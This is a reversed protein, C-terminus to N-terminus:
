GAKQNVPLKPEWKKAEKWMVEFQSVFYEYWNGDKQSNLTFVATEMFTKHAYLEVIVKGQPQNRNFVLVSFSPAYPLLRVELVGKTSKGSPQYEMWTKHLYEIDQITAALRKNFYIGEDPDESRLSAMQTASSEPESILVRIHAGDKLRERLNSFQKNITSTLSFGCLDISKSSQVLPDLAPMKEFFAIASPRDALQGELLTVAQISLKEINALKRYREIIESTALLALVALVGTILDDTTVNAKDIERRYILFSAYIVTALVTANDLIFNTFVFLWKPKSKM